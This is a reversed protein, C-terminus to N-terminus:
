RSCPAAFRLGDASPKMDAWGEACQECMVMDPESRGGDSQEEATSFPTSYFLLSSEACSPGIPWARHLIPGDLNNNKEKTPSVVRPQLHFSAHSSKLIRRWRM